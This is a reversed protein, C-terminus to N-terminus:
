RNRRIVLLVGFLWLMGGLGAPQAANAPTGESM